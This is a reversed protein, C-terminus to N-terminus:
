RCEHALVPGDPEAGFNTLFKENLKMGGNVPDVDVQLLVSGNKCLDPYLQRDWASFLSNTVYLRCGDLSLQIMQPGAEMKVGQIILPEKADSPDVMGKQTPLGGLSITSTLKPKAPNTIDYQHVEGQLWNSIYLWKDDMSILIDTILGPIIPLEWNNAKINPISIVKEAAWTKDSKRFIRFVSSTFACGVFGEQSKPDHLFRIELPTVGEDGLDIKQVLRKTKWSYVNLTRGSLDKDKIVEFTEGNFWNYPSIFETAILVDWYPQYWFDYGFEGKEEGTTWLGKVKWTDGDLLILDGLKNGKTDGLTSLLVTNDPLCHATHGSTVGVSVLEEKEIVKHLKPARENSTDVVYIRSSAIGPLILKNRSKTPDNFCSSCSNWGMHHLEDGVYPMKLRHIVKSYTKSEPDIDVTALYDPKTPDLQVCTIYLLKERKANKVADAPTAWGPGCVPSMTALKLHYSKSPRIDVAM